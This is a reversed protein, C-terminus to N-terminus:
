AQIFNAPTSFPMDNDMTLDNVKELDELKQMWKEVLDVFNNLVTKFLEYVFSQTIFIYSLVISDNEEDVGLSAGATEIGFANAKLLEKFFTEKNELPIVGIKSAFICQDQEKRFVIDVNIKSDFNLSCLNDENLRLDPLGVEKGYAAIFDVFEVM